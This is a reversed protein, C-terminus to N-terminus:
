SATVIFSRRDMKLDVYIHYKALLPHTLYFFFLFIIYCYLSAQEVCLYQSLFFLSLISLGFRM